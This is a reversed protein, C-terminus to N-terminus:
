KFSSKLLQLLNKSIEPDTLADEQTQLLMYEWREKPLFDEKQSVEAATSTLFIFDLADTLSFPSLWEPIARLIFQSGRLVEIEFGLHNLSDVKESVGQYSLPESVLLPTSASPLSLMKKFYLSLLKSKKVVVYTDSRKSILFDELHLTSNTAISTNGNFQHPSFIGDLNYQHQQIKIEAQPFSIMSPQTSEPKQVQSTALSRKKFADKITANLLSIVKSSEQFKISTKHPHVNVDITHSSAEILVLYQFEDTGSSTQIAQSVIKHLGKDLIMRDNIILYQLKQPAKFFGPVLYVRVRYNEYQQDSLYIENKLKPILDMIRNEISTQAPYIEKEQDDFKIHFEVQPLAYIFSFLIKKIFNKESSQSQIFKLRAPTNFFLDQITLETGTHSLSSSRQGHYILQAGELKIESAVAESKTQTLCHVKSIACISALAEGRFGFSSLNFLDEFQSIKSTAHRSFALPLDQYLIGSGNDKIQISDLGANKLSLEIRTAGADVANEVIEKILNGTREIVEGAKIQDILHEPLLQIVHSSSNM